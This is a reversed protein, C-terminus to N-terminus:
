RSGEFTVNLRFVKVRSGATVVAMLKGDPSFALASIPETFAFPKRVLNRVEWLKKLGGETLRWYSLVDGKTGFTPIISRKPRFPALLDLYPNEYVFFLSSDRPHFRVTTVKNQFRIQWHSKEDGVKWLDVLWDKPGAGFAILFKGDPSFSIQHICVPTLAASTIKVTSIKKATPLHFLEFQDLIPNTPTTFVVALFEGGPSVALNFIEKAKFSLSKVLEGSEVRWVKVVECIPIALVKVEDIIIEHRATALFEGDPSFALTEHRATTLFKGGPSFTLFLSRGRDAKLSKAIKGEPLKWVKVTGNVDYAALWKGNPALTKVATLTNLPFSKVLQGDKARWVKVTKAATILFEGDPSFAIEHSYGQEGHMQEWLKTVYSTQPRLSLITAITGFLFILLFVL